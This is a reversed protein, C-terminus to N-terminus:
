KFEEKLYKYFVKAHEQENRATEEFIEQIQVYGEKKAIKAAITYRMKAQSEGAFSTILNSATKTGKLEAM